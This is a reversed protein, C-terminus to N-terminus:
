CASVTLSRSVEEKVQDPGGVTGFLPFLMSQHKSHLPIPLVRHAPCMYYLLLITVQEHGPPPPTDQVAPDDVALHQFIELVVTRQGDVVEEITTTTQAVHM